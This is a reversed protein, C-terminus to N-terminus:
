ITSQSTPDYLGRLDHLIQVDVLIRHLGLNGFGLVGVARQPSRERRDAKGRSRGGRKKSEEELKDGVVRWRFMVLGSSDARAQGSSAEQRTSRCIIIWNVM